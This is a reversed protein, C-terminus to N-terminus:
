DRQDEIVATRVVSVLSKRWDPLAIKMKDALRRCTLASRRPRAANTPYASAPVPKLSPVPHGLGQLAAFTAEAVDFWSAAGSGAVHYVGWGPDHDAAAHMVDALSLLADALDLASTPSGWQDNVVSVQDRERALRLMTTVFNKGWPSYVRATRAIIHRHNAAAVRREGELKTHGYVNIPTPADDEVYPRDLQGDFVYDTSIQIIPADTAAAGMAIQEAGLANIARAREPDGEARDVDTHAAANIVVDPAHAAMIGSLNSPSELDLEPRGIHILDLGPRM